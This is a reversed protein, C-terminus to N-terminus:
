LERLTQFALVDEERGWRTLNSSEQKGKSAKDEVNYQKHNDPHVLSQSKDQLITKSSSKLLQVGRSPELNVTKGFKPNESYKEESLEVNPNVMKRFLENGFEFYESNMFNFHNDNLLSTPKFTPTKVLDEEELNKLSNNSHFMLDDHASEMDDFPLRMNDLQITPNDQPEFMMDEINMCESKSDSDSFEFYRNM